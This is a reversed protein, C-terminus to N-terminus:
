MPPLSLTNEFAFFHHGTRCLSINGLTQELVARLHGFFSPPM